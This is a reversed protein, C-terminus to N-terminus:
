SKGPRIASGVITSFLRPLCASAFQQEHRILRSGCSMRDDRTDLFAGRDSLAPRGAKDDCDIGLGLDGIEDFRGLSAAVNEIHPRDAFGSAILM